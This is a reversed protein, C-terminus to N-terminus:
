TTSRPLQDLQARLEPLKHRVVDWVIDWNVGFYHHIVKDRLGALKKWQIQEHRTKFDTSLGKVAEGIVELNRIVADQTKTDRLFQEYEVGRAYREVRKIAEQIDTLFEADSRESM